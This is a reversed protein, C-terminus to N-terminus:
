VGWPAEWSIGKMKNFWAVFTGEKTILPNLNNSCSSLKSCFEYGVYMKNPWLNWLKGKWKLQMDTSFMEPVTNHINRERKSTTLFINLFLNCHEHELIFSFFYTIPSTHLLMHTYPAYPWFGFFQSFVVLFNMFELVLFSLYSM